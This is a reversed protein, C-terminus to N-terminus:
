WRRMLASPLDKGSSKKGSRISSSSSTVSGSSKLKPLAGDRVPKLQQRLSENERKVNALDRKVHVFDKFNHNDIEVSSKNRTLAAMEQMLAEMQARMEGRMRESDSLARRLGDNEAKLDDNAAQCKEVRDLADARETHVKKLKARLVALLEEQQNIGSDGLNHELKSIQFRLEQNTQEAFALEETLARNDDEVTQYRQLEQLQNQTSETLEHM